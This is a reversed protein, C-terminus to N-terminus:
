RRPPTMAAIAVAINGEPTQFYAVKALDGPLLAALEVPRGNKSIHADPAARFPVRRGELELVIIRNAADVEAIRGQLVSPAVIIKLALPPGDDVKQFAVGVIDGVMLAQFGVEHFLKVIKTDPTVKFTLITGKPLRVKILHEEPNIATIAGRVTRVTGGPTVAHIGVAINEGDNTTFFCVEARDEPAIEELKAPLGDKEIKTRDDIKVTLDGDPTTITLTGAATDVASVIGRVCRIEPPPTVAHVFLAVFGDPTQSGCAKAIDGESLDALAAKQGNKTIVADPAVLIGVPDGERPKLAIRRAEVDVGLIRGEICILPPKPTFASVMAAHFVGEVMVGAAAAFDGIELAEIAAPAGNKVIRAGEDLVVRVPDAPEKLKLDFAKEEPYVAAIRGEIRQPPRVAFASAAVAV